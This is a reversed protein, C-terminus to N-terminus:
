NVQFHHFFSFNFQNCFNSDCRKLCVLINLCTVFFPRGCPLVIPTRIGGEGPGAPCLTNKRSEELFITNKLCTNKTVNYTQTGMDQFNKVERSITQPSPGQM